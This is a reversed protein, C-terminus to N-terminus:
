RFFVFKSLSAHVLIDKFFFRLTRCLFELVYLLYRLVTHILSFLIFLKVKNVDVREWPWVAWHWSFCGQSTTQGMPSLSFMHTLVQNGWSQTISSFIDAEKEDWGSYHPSNCSQSALLFAFLTWFIDFLYM